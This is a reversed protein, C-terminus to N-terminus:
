FGSSCPIQCRVVFGERPTM